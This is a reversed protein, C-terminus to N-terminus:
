IAASPEFSLSGFNIKMESSPSANVNKMLGDSVLDRNRGSMSTSIKRFVHPFSYFPKIQFVVTADSDM